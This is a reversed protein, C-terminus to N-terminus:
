SHAHFRSTLRVICKLLMWSFRMGLPGKHIWSQPNGIDSENWTREEVYRDWNWSTVIVDRVLATALPLVMCNIENVMAYRLEEAARVYDKSREGEHEGAKFIDPRGQRPM